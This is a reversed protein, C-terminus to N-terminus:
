RCISRWIAWAAARWTPFPKLNFDEKHKKAIKPQTEKGESGLEGAWKGDHLAPPTAARHLQTPPCPPTELWPGSGCLCSHVGCHAGRLSPDARDSCLGGQSDPFQVAGNQLDRSIGWGAERMLVLTGRDGDGARGFPCSPEKLLGASQIDM